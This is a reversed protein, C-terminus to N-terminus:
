ISRQTYNVESYKNVTVLQMSGMSILAGCYSMKKSQIRTLPSNFEGKLELVRNFHVKATVNVALTSVKNSNGQSFSFCEIVWIFGGTGYQFAMEL